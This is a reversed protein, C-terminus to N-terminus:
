TLLESNALLESLSGIVHSPGGGAQAATSVLVIRAGASAAWGAVEVNDDVVLANRPEVGADAFLQTYFRPGDKFCDLLDPGYLRTFCQRVGMGALYGDLDESAEGSATYLAYGQKSLALITAVVGPFAARVRPTIARTAAHSLAVCDDDAPAAIGVRDCMARLWDIQYQHDFSAYDPAARLRVQWADPALISAIVDANATAWAEPTGGLKPAFFASILRQWQAARLRNDNMVGGDDLFIVPRPM